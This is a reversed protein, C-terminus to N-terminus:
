GYSIHIRGVSTHWSSKTVIDLNSNQSQYESAIHSKVLIPDIRLKLKGMQFIPFNVWGRVVRGPNQQQLESALDHRVRQLGVSQLM